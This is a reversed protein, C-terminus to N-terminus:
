RVFYTDDCRAMSGVVEIRDYDSAMATRQNVSQDDPVHGSLTGYSGRGQSRRETLPPSQPRHVSTGRPGEAVPISVLGIAMQM